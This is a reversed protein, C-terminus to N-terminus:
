FRPEDIVEDGGIITDDNPRVDGPTPSPHAEMRYAPDEPNLGHESGYGEDRSAMNTPGGTPMSSGPVGSEGQQAPARRVQSETLDAHHVDDEVERREGPDFAEDTREPVLDGTAGTMGGDGVHEQGADDQRPM